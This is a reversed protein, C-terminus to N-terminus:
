NGGYLKKGKKKLIANTEINESMIDHQEGITGPPSSRGSQGENSEEDIREEDLRRAHRRSGRDSIEVHTSFGTRDDFRGPDQMGTNPEFDGVGATYENENLNDSIASQNM